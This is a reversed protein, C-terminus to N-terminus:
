EKTENEEINTNEQEVSSSHQENEEVHYGREEIIRCAELFKEDKYIDSAEYAEEELPLKKKKLRKEFIQAIIYCIVASLPVGIVMGVFGFFESCVTTAAIVGIPTLGTSESHIHPAILNGDIQQIILIIAVFLIVSWIDGTAIFILIASPISGIFPGFFPIINTIGCILGILAAFPLKCIACVVGIVIGVLISDLIAGIVYRGFTNNTYKAFNIIRNYNKKKFIACLARKSRRIISEKYILFYISLVIGVIFSFAHFVLSKIATFIGSILSQIIGDLSGNEFADILAGSMQGTESETNVFFHIISNWTENADNVFPLTDLFGIIANKFQEIYTPFRDALYKVNEVINPVIILGLGIIVLVVLVYTTLISVLKRLTPHAKKKEIFKFVYKHIKKYLPNLLFAIVFGYIFASLCEIITSVFGFITGFNMIAFVLGILLAGVLFALIAIKFHKDDKNFKKFM